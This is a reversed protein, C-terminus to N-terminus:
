KTSAHRFFIREGANLVHTYSVFLQSMGFKVIGQLYWNM